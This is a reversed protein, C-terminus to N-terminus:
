RHEKYYDTPISNHLREIERQTLPTVELTKLADQLQEHTRIGVVASTIAKNHLVFQLATQVLGRGEKSLTLIAAAAKRVEEKTYNLYDRAPKDILIGQALSGRTLVGINKQQVLPLVM